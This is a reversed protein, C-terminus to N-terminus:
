PQKDEDSSLIKKIMMNGVPQKLWRSRMSYFILGAILYFGAVIFFGYYLKGLAEGIFIALGINLLTFFLAAFFTVVIGSALSSIMDASKGATKLKLLDISTELYGSAKEVLLEVNDITQNM